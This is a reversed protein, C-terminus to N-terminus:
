SVVYLFVTMRFNRFSELLCSHSFHRIKFNKAQNFFVSKKFVNFNKNATQM